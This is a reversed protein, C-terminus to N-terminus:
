QRRMSRNRTAPLRWVRNLMRIKHTEPRFVPEVRVSFARYADKGAFAVREDGRAAVGPIQLLNSDDHCIAISSVVGCRWSVVPEIM